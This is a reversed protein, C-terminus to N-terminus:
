NCVDTFGVSTQLVEVPLLSTLDSGCETIGFVSLCADLAIDIDLKDINGDVTIDAQVQGQGVLPIPVFLGPIIVEETTGATIDAITYKIGLAAETVVISMTAPNACPELDILMGVTDANLVNVQCNILGGLPPKDLCTCYSPLFATLVSCVDIAEATNNLGQAIVNLEANEGTTCNIGAVTAPLCQSKSPCSYRTDQCVVADVTPACGFKRGANAANTVCTQTADCFNGNGCENVSWAAATAFLTSLISFKMTFYRL